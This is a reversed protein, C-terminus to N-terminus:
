ACSSVKEDILASSGLVIVLRVGLNRVLAADALLAQLRQGITVSGPLLLVLTTDRHFEIYPAGQRFIEVTLSQAASAAVCSPAARRGRPPRAARARAAPLGRKPLWAAAAMEWAAFWHGLVLRTM